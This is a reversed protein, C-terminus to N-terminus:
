EQVSRGFPLCTLRIGYTRTLRLEDVDSFSAELRSTLVRFVTTPSAPAPPTWALLSRRGLQAMLAAEGQALAVGDQASVEVRLFIERNGHSVTRVDAGDLMQSPITVDFPEPNGFDADDGLT